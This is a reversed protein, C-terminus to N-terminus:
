KRANSEEQAALAAEWLARSANMDMADSYWTVDDEFAEQIARAIACRADSITTCSALVVTDIEASYEQKHIRRGDEIGYKVLM